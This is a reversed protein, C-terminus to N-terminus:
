DKQISITKAAIGILLLEEIETDEKRIKTHTPGM